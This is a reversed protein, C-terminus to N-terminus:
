SCYRSKLAERRLNKPLVRVKEVEDPTTVVTFVTTTFTTTRVLM